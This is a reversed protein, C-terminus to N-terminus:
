PLKWTTDLPRDLGTITLRADGAAPAAATFRLTGERHHGGPGDGTWAAGTWPTGDVVLAANAAVDIGPAGTHTDFVVKFEAGGADLRAPTIVVDLGGVTVKQAALGGASPEAISEGRGVLFVAAGALALAALALAILRRAM